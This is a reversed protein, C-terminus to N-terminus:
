VAAKKSDAAEKAEMDFEEDGDSGKDPQVANKPKEKLNPYWERLGYHGTPL